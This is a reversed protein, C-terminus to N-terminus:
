FEIVRTIVEGREGWPGLIEDGKELTIGIANGIKMQLNKTGSFVETDGAEMIGEFKEEGDVLVQIWTRESAIIKITKQEAKENEEEIITQAEGENTEQQNLVTQEATHKNNEIIEGENVDGNVQVAYNNNDLSNIENRSDNLLFISYIIFTMVMLVVVIILSSLVVKNHLFDFGKSEVETESAENKLREEEIKQEFENILEEADLGLYNAYGKIFAKAYAQGPIVEFKEEEIAELYRTRIKIKEQVDKLTLGKEERAKKLKEGIAL